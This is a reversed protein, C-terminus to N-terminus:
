LASTDLLLCPKLSRNCHYATTYLEILGHNLMYCCWLIHALMAPQTALMVAYQIMLTRKEFLDTDAALMVARDMGVCM